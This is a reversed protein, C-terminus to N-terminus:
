IIYLLNLIIIFSLLSIIMINYFKVSKYFFYEYNFVFIEIIYTLIIIYNVYTNNFIIFLRILGYTIIWYKLFRNQINDNFVISHTIHFKEFLSSFIDYIGNLLVLGIILNKYSNNINM